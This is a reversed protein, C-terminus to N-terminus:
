FKTQYTLSHTVPKDEDITETISKPRGCFDDGYYEYTRIVQQVLSGNADYRKRSTINYANFLDPANEISLGTYAKPSNDHEYEDYGLGNGDKDKFDIKTVNHFKEDYSFTGNVTVTGGAGDPQTYVGSLVYGETGWSYSAEFVLNDNADITKDNVIRNEEDYIVGRSGLKIDSGDFFDQIKWRDKSDYQFNRYEVLEGDLYNVLKELQFSANYKYETSRGDNFVESAMYCMAVPRSVVEIHNLFTTEKGVFAFNGVLGMGVNYKGPIEYSVTVSNGSATAPNGGDFRWNVEGTYPSEDRVGLLPFEVQKSTNEFTVKQNVFVIVTPNDADIIAPGNSGDPTTTFGFELDRVVIETSGDDNQKCGKALCILLFFLTFYVLRTYIRPM